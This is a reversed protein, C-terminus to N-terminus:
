PRGRHAAESLVQWSDGGDNHIDFKDYADAPFQGNEQHSVLRWVVWGACDPDDHITSLWRAYAQAQTPNANGQAYGFEELLIPKHNTRAVACDTKILDDFGSPNLGYYLPYGHWTVFDIQAMTFDAPDLRDQGTTLLHQPDLNKVWRAMNLVWRNRVSGFTVEPENMLEWAMITPDDRYAKQTLPNMRLLVHQVWARYDAQPRPDSFFFNHEDTSGYWARIQQAGGTYGHFDMFAIILRLHRKAAEAMLKDFKGIGNPGDNFAIQEKVPDWYIMYAGHVGLNSSDAQGTFNWNTRMTVGDPSGIVPQLFTRVVNAGMAVADDLVATVEQDAGYTLYHNNVGTVFFPKRDVSFHTGAAHVFEDARATPMGVACGLAAGYLALKWRGPRMM